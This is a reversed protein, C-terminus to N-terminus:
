NTHIQAILDSIYGGHSRQQFQVAIKHSYISFDKRLKEDAILLQIKQTLEPIDRCAFVFGNRGEQVDDNESYSGCRDSVIIPCAMYIAESIALSHRDISAPHVYIDTAAYYASLEEPSVFGTFYVKSKKLLAAKQELETQMAGSGLVFLHTIMGIKELEVMASIIDGQRKSPVLKGVVSLVIDKDDIKYHERIIKNLQGRDSYSKEYHNVDIPFHMRIIKKFPVSYHQYFDENANGVSLFYNIRSFYWRLFPYKLWEKILNRKHVRESDSIYALKVKNKLAWRFARRQLRQFYGYTVVIDPKYDNLIADLIPADLKSNVPVVDEGNLFQHDIKDLQLNNWVVEKNFQKDVYSKFGLSSGFFVKVQVDDLSALSVYQPCFHQIPHSVVIAIKPKKKM